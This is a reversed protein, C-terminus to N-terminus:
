NDGIVHDGSRTRLSHAGLVTRFALRTTAIQYDAHFEFCTCRAPILYITVFLSSSNSASVTMYTPHAHLVYMFSYTTTNHHNWGEHGAM